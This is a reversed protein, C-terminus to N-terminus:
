IKEHSEEKSGIMQKWGPLDAPSQLERELRGLAAQAEMQADLRIMGAENVAMRGELIRESSVAGAAAQKELLQFSNGRAQHLEGAACFQRYSHAYDAMAQDLEGLVRVQLANFRAAAEERQRRATEIAAQNQNFLPLTLSAGLGWKHDSQDFEYGPGITLDPYQNAVEIQLRAQAANYEALLGLIDARNMLAQKWVNSAPTEGPLKEFARFDLPIARLAASPVGVTSALRAFAMAERKETEMLDLKAAGLDQRALEVAMRDTGGLKRKKDLREALDRQLAVQARWLEASQRAHYLSLMEARVQVRTQWATDVLQLWAADAQFRAQAIRAKRKAPLEVIFDLQAALVWPSIGADSPTSSNFAPAIGLTPNQYEGARDIESLAAAWHARAAALEPRYYFAALTLDAPKWGNSFGAGPRNVAMFEMLGPASLSRAEFAALNSDPELPRNDFQACGGLLVLISVFM